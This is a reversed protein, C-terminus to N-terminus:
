NSEKRGNTIKRKPLTKRPHRRHCAHSSRATHSWLYREDEDGLAVCRKCSQYLCALRKAQFVLLTYVRTHEVELLENSLDDFTPLLLGQVDIYTLWLDHNQMITINSLCKIFLCTELYNSIKHYKLAFTIAPMDIEITIVTHEICPIENKKDLVM